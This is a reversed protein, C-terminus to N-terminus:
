SQLDPVITGPRLQGSDTILAGASANATNDPQGVSLANIADVVQLLM